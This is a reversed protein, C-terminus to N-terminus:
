RQSAQDPAGSQAAVHTQARAEHHHAGAAEICGVWVLGMPLILAPLTIVWDVSGSLVAISISAAFLAKPRPTKLGHWTKFGAYGGMALLVVMVPLGLVIAGDLWINHSSFWHANTNLGTTAFHDIVLAISGPGFGTIPRAM